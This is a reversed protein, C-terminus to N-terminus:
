YTHFYPLHDGMTRILSIEPEFGLCNKIIDSITFKKNESIGLIYKIKLSRFNVDDVIFIPYGDIRAYGVFNFKNKLKTVDSKNICVKIVIKDM